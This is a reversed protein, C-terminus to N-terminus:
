RTNKKKMIEVFDLNKLHKWSVKNKENEIALQTLMRSIVMTLIILLAFYEFCLCFEQPEFIIFCNINSYHKQIKM